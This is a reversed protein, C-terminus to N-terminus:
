CLFFILLTFPLGNLLLHWGDTHYPTYEWFIYPVAVVESCFILENGFHEFVKLLYKGWLLCLYLLLYMLLHEVDVNKM